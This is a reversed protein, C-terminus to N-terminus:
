SAGTPPSMDESFLERLCVFCSFPFSTVQSYSRLNLRVKAEDRPSVQCCWWSAADHFPPPSSKTSSPKNALRAGPGPKRAMELHSSKASTQQPCHRQAVPTFWQTWSELLLHYVLGCGPTLLASFIHQLSKAIRSVKEFSM